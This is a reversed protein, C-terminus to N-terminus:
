RMCIVYIDSIVLRRERIDYIGLRVEGMVFLGKCVVRMMGCVVM